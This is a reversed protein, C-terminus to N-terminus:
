LDAIGCDDTAVVTPSVTSTLIQYAGRVTYGDHTDPDWQWRDSVNSQVFVADLLHRCKEVM